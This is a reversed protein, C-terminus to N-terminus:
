NDSKLSSFCLAIMSAYWHGETHDLFPSNFLSAIVLSMLLGQALWKYQDPLKRAYYIQSALFGTYVLVGLLGLQVGIMLFENHPNNTKFKEEVAIRQYEKSFSGTGYGLLPKEAMLKLSYKWFTYRQGMSSDTQKPEPQLYAQTNVVGENIRNAKDSFSLFLTLLVTVVGITLMCKKLSLRQKAFLLILAVIILQGTRGEVVYFLNYICLGLLIVYIKAYQQGGYAKHMCYFAFFAVFISHTIRSKICADGQRNLDIIGFHMLYSILLIGISAAIFVIWAWDRYRETTLFSMLIPIFFLERYKGMMSLADSSSVFGYSLGVIFCGYLLLAWLAVPHKKLIDPLNMFQASLIWLLGVIVSLIVALSTSFYIGAIFLATFYGGAKFALTQMKEISVRSM